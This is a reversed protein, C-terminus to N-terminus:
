DHSVYNSIRRQARKESITWIRESLTWDWDQITVLMPKYVASKYEPVLHDHFEMVSSYVSRTGIPASMTAERLGPNGDSKAASDHTHIGRSCAGSTSGPPEDGTGLVPEQGPAADPLGAGQHCQVQGNYSAGAHGESQHHRFSRRM